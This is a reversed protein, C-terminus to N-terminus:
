ELKEIRYRDTLLSYKLRRPIYKIKPPQGFSCLTGLSASFDVPVRVKINIMNRRRLQTTLTRSIDLLTTMSLRSFDSYIFFEALRRMTALFSTRFSM